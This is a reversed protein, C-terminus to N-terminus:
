VKHCSIMPTSPSSGEHGLDSSKLDEAYVLEAMGRPLKKLTPM